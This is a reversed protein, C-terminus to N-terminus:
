SETRTLRDILEHTIGLGAFAALTSLPINGIMRILEEHGLIGAPRGDPHVGIAERLAQGGAPDALWEELTSMGTLPLAPMQGDIVITQTCRIDRSSAGVAIQFDGPELVWRRHTTSWYSFDRSTLTLTIRQQAEPALDVKTFAKLERPPRAVSAAADAVYLQVVECGSRAGVNTVTCTVAVSLDGADASGAQAVQLDGYDFTTYSLGHGFPYAVAMNAADFGRYGVFVGAGYRVHGEEGPFNLFSPCDQLRLPITEALRGSPNVAGTLVDALASGTAQGGLWCELVAAPPTPCSPWCTPRPTLCISIGAIWARPSTPRHCAWSRSSSTPAPRPACRKPPSNPTPVTTTPASGPRSGSPRRRCRRM